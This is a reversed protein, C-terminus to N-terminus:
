KELLLRCVLNERSQLESTHEESRCKRRRFSVSWPQSPKWSDRWTVARRLLRRERTRPDAGAFVQRPLPQGARLLDGRGSQVCPVRRRPALSGQRSRAGLLAPRVLLGESPEPGAAATPRPERTQGPRRPWGA